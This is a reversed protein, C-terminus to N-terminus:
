FSTEYTRSLGLLNQGQIPCVKLNNAMAFKLTEFNKAAYPLSPTGSFVSKKATSSSLSALYAGDEQISLQDVLFCPESESSIKRTTKSDAHASSMLILSLTYFVLLRM